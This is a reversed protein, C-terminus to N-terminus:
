MGFVLVRFTGPVFNGRPNLIQVTAPSPPERDSLPVFLKKTKVDLAMNRGGPVTRVTECPAIRLVESM